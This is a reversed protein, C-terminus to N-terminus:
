RTRLPPGATVRLEVADAKLAEFRTHASVPRLASTAGDTYRLTWEGLDEEPDLLLSDALGLLRRRLEKVTHLGAWEVVGEERLAGDCVEFVVKVRPRAAGRGVDAGGFLRRGFLRRRM